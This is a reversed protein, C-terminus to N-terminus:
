KIIKLSRLEALNREKRNQLEKNIWDYNGTKACWEIRRSDRYGRMVAFLAEEYTNYFVSPNDWKECTALMFEEVNKLLTENYREIKPVVYELIERSKNEFVDCTFLTHNNQRLVHERFEKHNNEDAVFSRTDRRRNECMLDISQLIGSRVTSPTTSHDLLPMLVSSIIEMAEDVCEKFGDDNWYGWFRGRSSQIPNESASLLKLLGARGSISILKGNYLLQLKFTVEFDGRSGLELTIIQYADGMVRHLSKGKRKFGSEGFRENFLNFFYGARNNM